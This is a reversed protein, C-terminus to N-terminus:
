NLPAKQLYEILYDEFSEKSGGFRCYQSYITAKLTTPISEISEIADPFDVLFEALKNDSEIENDRVIKIWAFEMRWFTYRISRMDFPCEEEGKYYLCGEFPTNSTKQM